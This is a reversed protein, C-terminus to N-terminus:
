RPRLPVASFDYVEASQGENELAEVLQEALQTNFSGDRDPGSIVLVKQSVPKGKM